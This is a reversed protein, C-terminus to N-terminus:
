SSHQASGHLREALPEAVAGAFRAQGAPTFHGDWRFFLEAAFVQGSSVSPVAALTAAEGIVGDGFATAAPSSSGPMSLVVLAIDHRACHERMTALHEALRLVIKARNGFRRAAADPRRLGAQLYSPHLDGALYLRKLETQISRYRSAQEEDMEALIQRVQEQWGSRFEAATIPPPASLRLNGVLQIARRFPVPAAGPLDDLLANFDEGQHVAVLIMDPDLGLATADLAARVYDTPGAGSKGLNAIEVDLGRGQLYRELVKPWSEEIAVGWGYTQSDGIALVRARGHPKRLTFERDRFGLRNVQVEFRYEATEIEVVSLPPFLLPFMPAEATAGVLQNAGLIAGVSLVVSALAVSLKKVMGTM